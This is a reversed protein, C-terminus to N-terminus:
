LLDKEYRSQIAVLQEARAMAAERAEGVFFNQQASASGAWLSVAAAAVLGVFFDRRNALGGRARALCDETAAFAFRVSLWAAEWASSASLVDVHSRSGAMLPAGGRARTGALRQPASQRTKPDLGVIASRDSGSAM